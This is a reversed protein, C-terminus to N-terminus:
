ESERGELWPINLSPPAPEGQEALRFRMWDEDIWVPVLPTRAHLLEAADASLYITRHPVGHAAPYETISGTNWLIFRGIGPINVQEVVVRTWRASVHIFVRLGNTCRALLADWEFSPSIIETGDPMQAM